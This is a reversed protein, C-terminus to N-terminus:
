TRKRRFIGAGLLGAGLLLMTSPEPIVSNYRNRIEEATLAKDYVAVEDIIGLFYQTSSSGTYGIRFHAQTNPIQGSRAMPSESDEIGDIYLRMYSGDYTGVIYHWLGDNLPENSDLEYGYWSPNPTNLTWRVKGPNNADFCTGFYWERNSGDDDKSAIPNNHNAAAATKVWAELTIASNIDLSPVDGIEIYDNIGDFSLANGVKGTTWSAGYITGHNSSVSDHAITGTGEEFNWYSVMGLAYVQTCCLLIYLLFIGLIIRKMKGGKLSVEGDISYANDM